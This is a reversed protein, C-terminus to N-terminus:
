EMQALHEGHSQKGEPKYNKKNFNLDSEIIILM